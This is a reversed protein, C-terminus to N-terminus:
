ASAVLSIPAPSPQASVQRDRRGLDRASLWLPYLRDQPHSVRKELLRAAEALHGAIVQPHEQYYSGWEEAAGGLRHPEAAGLVIPTLGMRALTNRLTVIATCVVWQYGAHHLYTALAIMLYRAQGPTHAALNGIEVIASREVPAATHLHREVPDDLYQELFLKSESAPRLGAVATLTGDDRYLGLLRDPLRQIRARYRHAFAQRVYAEAEARGRSERDLGVLRVPPPLDAVRPNFTCKETSVRNVSGDM